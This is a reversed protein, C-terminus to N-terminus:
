AAALYNKELLARLKESILLDSLPSQDFVAGVTNVELAAQFVDLEEPSLDRLKAELPKPVTLAASLSPLKDLQVRYEDLQRMGDMLLAETSDELEELVPAEDPPELEFSGHAWSLMRV